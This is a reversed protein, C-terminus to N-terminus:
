RKLPAFGRIVYGVEDDAVRRSGDIYISRPVGRSGYTVVLKAVKRDIADQITRFLRPVTAQDLLMKSTSPAPRGNRVVIKVDSTPPCFCNVSLKYVYSAVGQAKWDKRAGSLARQESGNTIGPDPETEIGQGAAAPVLTLTLAVFAALKFSRM